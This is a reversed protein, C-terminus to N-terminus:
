SKDVARRFVPSFLSTKIKAAVEPSVPFAASAPNQSTGWVFIM